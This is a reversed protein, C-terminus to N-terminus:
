WESWGSLYNAWKDEYCERCLRIQDGVEANIDDMLRVKRSRHCSECVGRKAFKYLRDTLAISEADEQYRARKIAHKLLNVATDESWDVVYGIGMQNHIYRPLFLRVADEAEAQTLKGDVNYTRNQILRRAYDSVYGASLTITLDGENSM